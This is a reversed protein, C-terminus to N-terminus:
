PIKKPRKLSPPNKDHSLIFKSLVEKLNTDIELKSLHKKLIELDTQVWDAFNIQRALFWRIVKPDKLNKVEFNYDWIGKQM